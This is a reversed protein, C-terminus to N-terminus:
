GTTRPAALQIHRTLRQYLFILLRKTVHIVSKQEWLKLGAIIRMLGGAVSLGAKPGTVRMVPPNKNSFLIRNVLGASEKLSWASRISARPRRTSSRALNSWQSLCM